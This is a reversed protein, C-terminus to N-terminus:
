LNLESRLDKKRSIGIQKASAAKSTSCDDDEGVDSGGADDDGDDGKKLPSLMNTTRGQTLKQAEVIDQHRQQKHHCLSNGMTSYEFEHESSMSCYFAKALVSKKINIPKQNVDCCSSSKQSLTINKNDGKTAINNKNNHTDQTRIKQINELGRANPRNSSYIEQYWSTKIDVTQSIANIDIFFHGM